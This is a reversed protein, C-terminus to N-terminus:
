EEVSFRNNNLSIVQDGAKIPPFDEAAAAAEDAFRGVPALVNDSNIHAFVTSSIRWLSEKVINMLAFVFNMM